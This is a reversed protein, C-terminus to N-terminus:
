PKYFALSEGNLFINLIRIFSTLDFKSLGLLGIFLPLTTYFLLLEKYDLYFSIDM